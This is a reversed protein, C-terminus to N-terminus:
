KGAGKAPLPNTASRQGTSGDVVIDAQREPDEAVFLTQVSNDDKVEGIQFHGQARLVEVMRDTADIVLTHRNASNWVTDVPVSVGEQEWNKKTIIREDSMGKYKVEILAM